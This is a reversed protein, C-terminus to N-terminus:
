GRRAKDLLHPTEENILGALDRAPFRLPLSTGPNIDLVVDTGGVLEFITRGEVPRTHNWANFTASSCVPFLSLEPRAPDQVLPLRTDGDHEAYALLEAHYFSDALMGLPNYGHLVRWLTLEFGNGVRFGARIPSPAYDPNIYYRGSLQGNEDVHYGGQIAYKPPSAGPKVAPDVFPIWQGPKSQADARLEDDVAPLPFPGIMSTRTLQPSNM